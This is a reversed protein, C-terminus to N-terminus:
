FINIKDKKEVKNFINEETKARRNGEEETMEKM